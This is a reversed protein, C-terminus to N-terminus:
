QGGWGGGRFVAPTAQWVRSMTANCGACMPQSEEHMSREIEITTQCEECKYDYRPM